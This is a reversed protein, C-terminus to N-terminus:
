GVRISCVSRTVFDLIAVSRDSSKTGVLVQVVGQHGYCGPLGGFPFSLDRMRRCIQVMCGGNTNRAVVNKSGREETLWLRSPDIASM